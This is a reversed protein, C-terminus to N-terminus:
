CKLMICINGELPGRIKNMSESKMLMVDENGCGKVDYVSVRWFAARKLVKILERWEEPKKEFTFKLTLCKWARILFFLRM